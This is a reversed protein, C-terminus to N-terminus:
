TETSCNVQTCKSPPITNGKLFETVKTFQEINQSLKLLDLTIVYLYGVSFMRIQEQQLKCFNRTILLTTSILIKFKYNFDNYIDSGHTEWRGSSRGRPYSQLTPTNRLDCGLDKLVSLSSRVAGFQIM